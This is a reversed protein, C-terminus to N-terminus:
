RLIPFNFLNTAGFSNRMKPTGIINQAVSNYRSRVEPQSWFLAVNLAANQKNCDIDKM